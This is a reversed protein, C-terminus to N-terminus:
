QLREVNLLARLEASVVRTIEDIVMVFVPETSPPDKLRGLDM